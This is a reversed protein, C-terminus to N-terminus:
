AFSSYLRKRGILSIVFILGSIFMAWSAPEPVPSTTFNTLHGNLTFNNKLGPGSFALELLSTEVQSSTVFSGSDPLLVSDILSRNANSVLILQLGHVNIDGFSPASLLPSFNKNSATLGIGLSIADRNFYTASGGNQIIRFSSDNNIQVVNGTPTYALGGSACEERTECFWPGANTNYGVESTAANAAIEGINATVTSRGITAAASTISNVYGASRSNSNLAPTTSEYTFVGTLTATGKSGIGPGFLENILTGANQGGVGITASPDFGITASYSVTVPAANTTLPIALALLVGLHWKNM